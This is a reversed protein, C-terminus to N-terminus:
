GRGGTRPRPPRHLWRSRGGIRPRPPRHPWRSSMPASGTPYPAEGEGAAVASATATAKISAVGDASAANAAAAAEISAVEDASPRPLLSSTARALAEVASVSVVSSDDIEEAEKGESRTEPGSPSSSTSGYLDALVMADVEDNFVIIGQDELLYALGAGVQRDSEGVERKYGTLAVISTACEPNALHARISKQSQEQFAKLISHAAQRVILSLTSGKKNGTSSDGSSVSTSNGQSTSSGSISSSNAPSEDGLSEEANMSNSSRVSLM